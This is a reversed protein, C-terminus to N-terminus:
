LNIVFSDITHIQNVYKNVSIFQLTFSNYNLDKLVGKILIPKLGRAVTGNPKFIEKIKVFGLPASCELWFIDADANAYIHFIQEFYISSGNIVITIYEENDLDNCSYDFNIEYEITPNVLPIMRCAIM